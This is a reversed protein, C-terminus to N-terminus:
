DGGFKKHYAVIAEFFEVFRKYRIHRERDGTGRSVEELAPILVDELDAMGRGRERKALYGIKPRLLVADRYAGIPDNEWRLEIQRATGFINRIQNSTVQTALARGIDKASQVLTEPDEQSIIRQVTERAPLRRSEDRTSQVM